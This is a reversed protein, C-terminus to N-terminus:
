NYTCLQQLTERRKKQGFCIIIEQRAHTEKKISYCLSRNLTFKPWFQQTAKYKVFSSTQRKRKIGTIHCSIITDAQSSSAFLMIRIIIAYSLLFRLENCSGLRPHVVNHNRRNQLKSM